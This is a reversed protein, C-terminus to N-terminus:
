LLGAFTRQVLGRHWPRGAANFLNLRNLATALQCYNTVGQRKLRRVIPWLSQPDNASGVRRKLLINARLEVKKVQDGTWLGGNKSAVGSAHLAIAIQRPVCIGMRRLRQIAPYVKLAFDDSYKRVAAVCQQRRRARIEPSQCWYGLKVGRAKARKLAERTRISMMEYEYEALAAMVHLTVRNAFPMDSVIFQVNSDLLASFFAVNRCLRDLRAVILTAHLKRCTALAENLIPRDPRTSNGIESFEAVVEGRGQLASRVMARQAEMGLGFLGQRNTSVRYYAVFPALSVLVGMRFTCRRGTVGGYINARSM